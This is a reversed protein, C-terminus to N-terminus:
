VPVYDSSGFVRDRLVVSEAVAVEYAASRVSKIHEGLFRENTRYFTPGVYVEDESEGASILPLILFM